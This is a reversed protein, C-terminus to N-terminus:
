TKGAVPDGHNRCLAVLHWGFRETRLDRGAFPVLMRDFDRRTHMRFVPADGHGAAVASIARLTSMVSRRNYAVVIALGGERLVRRCEVVIAGPDPAFPLVGHCLVLDFSADSFPLRAADAQVLKARLGATELYQRALVLSGRSIDIGSARAGARALRVLDLGAGCGVDLVDKDRWRAFGILQPLYGLKSYRYNAMAAFYGASGPPDHSLVTDHVRADWYARV